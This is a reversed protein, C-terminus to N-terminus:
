AGNVLIAKKVLDLQMNKKLKAVLKKDGILQIDPM